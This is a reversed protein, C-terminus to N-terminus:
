TIMKFIFIRQISQLNTSSRNITKGILRGITPRYYRGIGIIPKELLIPRYKWVFVHIKLFFNPSVTFFNRFFISCLKKKEFPFVNFFGLICLFCAHWNETCTLVAAFYFTSLIRHKKNTFLRGICDASLIPKQGITDTDASLWFEVIPRGSNGFDFNNM